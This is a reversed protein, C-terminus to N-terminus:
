RDRVIINARAGKRDRWLIKDPFIKVVIGLREATRRFRPHHLFDRIDAATNVVSGAVVVLCYREHCLRPQFFGLDRTFFTTRRRSHLFRLIEEQDQWEPRGIQFGVQATRIRWRRLRLAEDRPINHDLLIV